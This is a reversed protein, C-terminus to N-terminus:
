RTQIFQDMQTDFKLLAEPTNFIDEKKELELHFKNVENM